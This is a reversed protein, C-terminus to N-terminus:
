RRCTCPAEMTARARAARWSRRGGVAAGAAGALHQCAAASDLMTRPPQKARVLSSRLFGPASPTAAVAAHREMWWLERVPLARPARAVGLRWRGAPRSCHRSHHSQPVCALRRSKCPWRLSPVTPLCAACPPAAAPPWPPTEAGRWRQCRARAAAQQQDHPPAQGRTRWRQRTREAVSPPCGRHWPAAQLACTASASPLPLPMPRVALDRSWLWPHHAAASDLVACCGAALALARMPPGAWRRGQM